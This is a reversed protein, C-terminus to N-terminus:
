GAQRVVKLKRTEDGQERAVAKTIKRKLHKIRRKSHEPFDTTLGWM